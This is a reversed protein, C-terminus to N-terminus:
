RRTWISDRDLGLFLIEHFSVDSITLYTIVLKNVVSASSCYKCDETPTNKAVLLVNHVKKLDM